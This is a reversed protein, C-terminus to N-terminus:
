IFVEDLAEVGPPGQVGFLPIDNLERLVVDDHGDVGAIAAIHELALLAKSQADGGVQATLLAPQGLVHEDQAHLVGLALHPVDGASEGRGAALGVQGHEDGRLAVLLVAPLAPAHAVVDGPDTGTGVAAQPGHVRLLAEEAHGGAGVGLGVGVGQLGGLLPGDEGVHGQVQVVVGHPPLLQVLIGGVMGQVPLAVGPAGVGGLTGSGVGVGAEGCRCLVAGADRRLKLVGVAHGDGGDDEAAAPGLGCGQDILGAVPLVAHEDTGHHGGLLGGGGLALDALGAAVGHGHQGEAAVM